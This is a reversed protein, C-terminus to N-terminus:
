NFLTFLFLSNIKRTSHYFQALFKDIKLFLLIHTPPQYFGSLGSLLGTSVSITAALQFSCSFLFFIWKFSFDLLILLSSFLSCCPVQLNLGFCLPWSAFTLNTM